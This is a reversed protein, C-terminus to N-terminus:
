RRIRSQLIREARDKSIIIVGEDRLRAVEAALREQAEWQGYLFGKGLLKFLRRKLWAEIRGPPKFAYPTGPLPLFVHAHVRGGLKVVKEIHKLTEEIDSRSECPLGFIYDVDVSFGANRLIEVANIVDESSHGRNLERLVRDSGSQAGVIIRSNDVRGKLIKISEESVYEPRVESPFTGLFVRCGERRLPQLADLLENVGTLDHSRGKSGYSLANPTIFRLDKLGKRLMILAHKVINEVSRHRQITGFSYSVQCYKCAHPCGRTIEIPNFRGCKVAFAPYEDLNSVVDRGKIIFEDGDLYAIGRGLSRPDGGNIIIRLFETFTRESDGLFAYDFGLSLLTGYPDGTAHPGGAVAIGGVRKVMKIVSKIKGIVSPLQPTILTQGYVIAEHRGRSALEGILYPAESLNVLYVSVEGWLSRELAGLLVNVSYKVERFYGFILALRSNPSGYRVAHYTALARRVDDSSSLYSRM